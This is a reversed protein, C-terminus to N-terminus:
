SGTAALAAEGMEKVMVGQNAVGGLAEPAEGIRVVVMDQSPMVLVIQNGLGLAAFADDPMGEFGRWWLFGYRENLDQSPATAEAVWESSVIQDDGWRGEQLFLHGFRAMDDCGAQVGMFALPNGAADRKISVTMGLPGFLKEQAYEEMDQGTAVELVRELTQIASNNYEWKTGPDDQQDLGIAYATKDRAVVAMDTYDSEFSYFRGSDNSVLNRVTVAESPTGKWEQIYDSAPDDLSLLGEDVAIGVLTSTVSKSASWVERNDDPEMGWYESAVVKGDKIVAMCTSQNEELFAALEGLPAADLGLDAPDATEWEDGPFVVGEAGADAGSEGAPDAAGETTPPAAETEAGEGGADASGGCGAAVLGLVIAGAVFRARAGGRGAGSGM